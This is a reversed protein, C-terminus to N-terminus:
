SSCIMSRCILKKAEELKQRYQQAFSYALAANGNARAEDIQMRLEALEHLTSQQSESGFNAKSEEHMAQVCALNAHAVAGTWILSFAIARFLQWNSSRM